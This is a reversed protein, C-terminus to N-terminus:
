MYLMSGVSPVAYEVYRGMKFFYKTSAGPELVLEDASRDEVAGAEGLAEVVEAAEVVVLLATSATEVVEVESTEVTVGVVRDWWAGRGAAWDDLAAELATVLLTGVVKEVAGAQPYRVVTVTIALLDV